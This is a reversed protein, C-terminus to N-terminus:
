ESERDADALVKYIFAVLGVVGLVIGSIVLVTTLVQGILGATGGRQMWNFGTWTGALLTIDALLLVGYLKLMERSVAYKLAKRADTKEM